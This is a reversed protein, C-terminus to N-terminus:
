KNIIVVMGRNIEPIIFSFEQEDRTVELKTEKGLFPLISVDENGLSEDYFIKIKKISKDNSNCSECLGKVNTLYIYINEDSVSYSAIIDIPAQIKLKPLYSASKNLLSLLEKKAEDIRNSTRNEFFYTNLDSNIIQSYNKGPCSQVYIYNKNNTKEFIEEIASSKGEERNENYKGTEGTIIFKTGKEALRKFVNIEDKSLCKVDPLILIAPSLKEVTRPTVIQSEIQSHILLNLFGRYSEIFDKSFYNRTIDSFYISVPQLPIRQSYFIDEYKSVWEYVIKRTEIDNTGSMVYGKVDWMNTGSFLQSAFLSKIADAPKVKKNEFWSYSLMWSAKDEAFARFTHMGIIFNYWDLPARDSAYYEGESYEHAIVDVVDYMQYVDAGVRVAEEGIGPYIEAITNCDPNVEKINRDIEEMFDTLTQIRFNIWKIFGPDDYNGLQIDKRANLGTEQKFAAATYDDFSAWTNEWGEFHTMWYPIDVYIGDIGTAAIERVRQMYIKRWEPAYPSIWVDEDGEDIWFADNGGFMAPRGDIDRQVWDPHDKFFTHEKNEADSTICELGAIYVFTKNNVSHAKKTIERITKLKEEPDIFSEYRGTIDNDVEIGYVFTESASKIISDVNDSSLPHGAIRVNHTWNQQAIVEASIFAPFFLFLIKNLRFSKM